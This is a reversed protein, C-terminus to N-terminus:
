PSNLMWAQKSQFHNPGNAHHDSVTGQGARWLSPEHQQIQMQTQFRLSDAALDLSICFNAALALSVM